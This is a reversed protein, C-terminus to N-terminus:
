VGGSGMDDAVLGTGVCTLCAAGEVQGTGLCTPCVNQGTGPVREGPELDNAEGLPQETLNDDRHEGSM